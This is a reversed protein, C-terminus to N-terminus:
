ARRSFPTVLSCSNITSLKQHRRYRHTKGRKVAGAKDAFVAQPQHNEALHKQHQKGSQHACELHNVAQQGDAVQAKGGIGQQGTGKDGAAHVPHVAQEPQPHWAGRNEAQLHKHGQPAFIEPSHGLGVPHIGHAPGVLKGGNRCRLIVELTGFAKQAALAIHVVKCVTLILFGGRLLNQAEVTQSHKQRGDAHANGGTNEVAGLQSNLGAGHRGQRSHGTRYKNCQFLGPLKQFFAQMLLAAHEAAPLGYLNQPPPRHKRNGM